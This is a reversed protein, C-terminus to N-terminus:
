AAINQPTVSQWTIQFRRPQLTRAANPMTPYSTLAGKV